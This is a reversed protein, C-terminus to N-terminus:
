VVLETRTQLGEATRKSVKQGVVAGALVQTQEADLGTLEIRGSGTRALAALTDALQAGEHTRYTAVVLLRSTALLGAIHRLLQLSAKDAWHLDDLVVVLPDLGATLYGGIAEFRRLVAGAVDLESMEPSEGSLLATVSGPVPRAPWYANVARLAQEWPWLPPAAVHEPCRGWVVPVSVLEAFRRLLSTKGIGAEGTVLVVQGRDRGVVGLVDVLRQLVSERGVFVEDDVLEPLATSMSVQAFARAPATASVTPVPRPPHWDLASAQTLIDRELRQLAAGPDIGLEEVLRRRTARLVALADAQRGARYLALAWLECAYERLPHAHVHAGLEAVAV